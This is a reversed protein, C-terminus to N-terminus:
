CRLGNVVVFGMAPAVAAAGAVPTAAMPRWGGCLASAPGLGLSGDTM